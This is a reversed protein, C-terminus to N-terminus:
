PKLLANTAIEDALENYIIGVHSKVKVFGIKIQQSYQTMTTIYNKTYENNAKWERALWKYIGEYDYFITIKQINKEIAKKVVFKVAECETGVNHLKIIQKHSQTSWRFVKDYIEKNNQIFLVIGYGGKNKNQSYSGDTFAIAQNVQLKNIM